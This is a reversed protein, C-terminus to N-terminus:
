FKAEKEGASKHKKVSRQKVNLDYTFIVSRSKYLKLLDRPYVMSVVLEKKGKGQLSGIRISTVQGSLERTRWNEAMAMNDWSLSEIVGQEYYKMTNPLWQDFTTTNRTLVIEPVGNKLLDVVLIPSPISFYTVRNFRRDEVVAEFSNTTAGWVGSDKWIQDGTPSLVCLRHLDNLMVIEDIGDNNIDVKAFNFVNVDNPLNLQPGPAVSHNHFQMEYIGGTFASEYKSGKKEGVLVKGQQGLYVTNLFYPVNRAVVHLRDGSFSLVYSCVSIFNAPLDRIMDSPHAMDANHTRLNTLFIYAKGQHYLDAVCVWIFRDLSNGNFEGIMRLGQNEKKYVVLRRQYMAVIEDRGDGDVDGVDMGLIGGEFDQSRWFGSQGLAGPSTVEVFNPNVYSIKDRTAALASPLLSEPNRNAQAEAEASAMQTKQGPKGFIQHNIRQAFLNVQPMIEDLNKAQAYFSVPGTKGSVPVMKADISVSRGTSTISGYLVYNAKLAEGIKLAQSQSIEGSGRAIKDVESKDVVQVKGEWALRSSLMDRIGGQLYNISAPTHMAFPLIVVRAPAAGAPSAAAPAAAPSLAFLFLGFLIATKNNFM